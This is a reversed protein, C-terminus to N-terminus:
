GFDGEMKGKAINEHVYLWPCIKRNINEYKMNEHENQNHKDGTCIAM